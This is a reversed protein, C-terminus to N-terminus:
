TDKINDSPYYQKIVNKFSRDNRLLGLEIIHSSFEEWEMTGQIIYYFLFTGDGNVDIEKFLDILALTIKKREDDSNKNYDLHDLM